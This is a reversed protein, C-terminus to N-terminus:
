PRPFPLITMRRLKLRRLGKRGARFLNPGMDFIWGDRRKRTSRNHRDLYTRTAALHAEAFSRAAGEVGRLLRSRKRKKGSGKRYIEQSSTAGQSGPVLLVVSRVSKHFGVSMTIRVKRKLNALLQRVV